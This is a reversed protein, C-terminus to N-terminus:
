TGRGQAALARRRRVPDGGCGSAADSRWGGRALYASAADHGARFLRLQEQRTLSFNAVGVFSTDVFVTREAVCPDALHVADNGNIVTDVLARAFGITGDFANPLSGPAPRRHLKIGFTLWRPPADDTRDFIEIPFDSCAGGDVLWSVNESPPAWALPRPRFYFPMSASAAVADAILQRDPDLGYM